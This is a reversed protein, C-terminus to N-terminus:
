RSMVHHLATLSSEDLLRLLSTAALCNSSPISSVKTDTKGGAIELDCLDLHSAEGERIGHFPLSELLRNAGGNTFSQQSSTLTM